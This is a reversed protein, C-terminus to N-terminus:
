SSTGICCTVADLMFTTDVEWKGSGVEWKGSGVKLDTGIFFNEGGCTFSSEKGVGWM